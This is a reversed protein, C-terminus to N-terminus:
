SPFSVFATFALEIGVVVGAGTNFVVVEGEYRPLEIDVVGFGVSCGVSGNSRSLSHHTSYQHQGPKMLALDDGSQECVCPM